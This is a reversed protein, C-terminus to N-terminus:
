TAVKVGWPTGMPGEVSDSSVSTIAVYYTLGSTLGEITYSNTYVQDSYAVLSALTWPGTSTSSYYINYSYDEGESDWTVTLSSSTAVIDSINPIAGHFMIVPVVGTALHREIVLAEVQERTFNGGYEKLLTYPVKVVTASDGPISQGRSRIIEPRAWIARPDIAMANDGFKSKIVGGPVRLDIVSLEDVRSSSAAHIEALVLWQYGNTTVATTYPNVFSHLRFTTGAPLQELHTYSEFTLVGASIGSYSQYIRTGSLNEWTLIGNDPFSSSDTLKVYDNGIFSIDSSTTEASLSYYMYQEGLSYTSSLDLNGGTGDQSLEIVRGSRDVKLYQIAVTSGSLNSGGSPVIYLVHFQGNYGEDFIPNTNLSTYELGTEKYYYTVFFSYIDPYERQLHIFGGENDWGSIGSVDWTVWANTTEITRFVREGTETYYEGDRSTNTTLAYLVENQVNKVLVEMEYLSDDVQLPTRDVKLLDSRLYDSKEEVEVKYPFLPSFTQSSFEPVSYIYPIDDRIISFTGNSVNLFWPSQDSQDIPQRVSVRSRELPTLYYEVSRGPTVITFLSVGTTVIYVKRWPKLQGTVSSVDDLTAESFAPESNLIQYHTLGSVSYRVFYIDVEGTGKNYSNTYNSFVTCSEYVGTTILDSSDRAEVQSTSYSHSDVEELNINLIAISDPDIDPDPLVHKWYFPKPKASVFDGVVDTLLFYRASTYGNIGTWIIEGSFATRSNEIISDETRVINLNSAPDIELSGVYGLVTDVDSVSGKYRPFLVPKKINRRTAFDKVHDVEAINWYISFNSM